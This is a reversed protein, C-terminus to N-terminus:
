NMQELFYSDSIHFYIFFEDSISVPLIPITNSINFIRVRTIHLHSYADKLELRM